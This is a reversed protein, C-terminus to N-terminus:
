RENKAVRESMGKRRRRVIPAKAIRDVCIADPIEVARACEVDPMAERVRQRIGDRTHLRGSLYEFAPRDIGNHRHLTPQGPTHVVLSGIEASGTFAVSLVVNTFSPIEKAVGIIEIGGLRQKARVATV